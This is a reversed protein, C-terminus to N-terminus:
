FSSRIYFWALRVLKEGAFDSEYPTRVTSEMPVGPYERFPGGIPARLTFGAEFGELRYGLRGILLWADGLPVNEPDEFTEDPYYLPMEYTSVYHAALDTFLGWDGTWRLGLNARLTPESALRDGDEDFVRRLGLNGWFMWAGSPNWVAQVEGGAAHIREDQNRYEFTSDLIDPRGLTDWVLNSEFYIMDEYINYFLDASLNLREDLFRGRWGAEISHVRENVLDENGLATEFKEVVEPFAAEDIV